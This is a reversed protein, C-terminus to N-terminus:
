TLFKGKKYLAIGILLYRQINVIMFFTKWITNFLNDDKEQMYYRFLFILFTSAAYIFIGTNAWFFFSNGLFLSEQRKMLQYFGLIGYVIYVACFISAGFTNFNNPFYIVSQLAFFLAFGGTLFLFLYNNRFIIRRYFFSIFLFESLVFVNYLWNPNNHFALKISTSLLDIFFGTAAYFWLLTFRQKLGLLM